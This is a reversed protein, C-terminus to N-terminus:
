GQEGRGASRLIPRAQTKSPILFHGAPFWAFRGRFTYRSSMSPAKIQLIAHTCDCLDFPVGNGNALVHMTETGQSFRPFHQLTRWRSLWGCLPGFRASLSRAHSLPIASNEAM